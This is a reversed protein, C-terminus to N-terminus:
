SEMLAAAEEGRAPQPATKVRRFGQEGSGRRAWSRDPCGHSRRTNRLEKLREWRDGGGRNSHAEVERQGMRRRRATGTEYHPGPEASHAYAHTHVHARVASPQQGSHHATVRRSAGPTRRAGISEIQPKM